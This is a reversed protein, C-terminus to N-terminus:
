ARHTTSGLSMPGKENLGVDEPLDLCTRSLANGCWAPLAIRILAAAQEEPPRRDSGAPFCRVARGPRTADLRKFRVGASLIRNQGPSPWKRRWGFFICDTPRATDPSKIDGHSLSGSARRDSGFRYGLVLSPLPELREGLRGQRRRAPGPLPRGASSDM